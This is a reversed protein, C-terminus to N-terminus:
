TQNWLPTDTLEAPPGYQAADLEARNLRFILIAHAINDDPPHHHRLWACLRAFRLSAFAGYEKRWASYPHDKLLAALKAPDKAAENFIRLNKLADQYSAEFVKNWPGRTEAYTSELITASIAYIGPNLDYVGRAEWAPYSPLRTSTIGYYDPSDTGFYGLYLPERNGPNHQGLWNKLGPLDMGWDLSSDVLRKYGQSPGGVVPSFYALYNPYIAMADCGYWLLLLGAGFVMWRKRWAWVFGVAGGALIDLALYSPLIHRHAINLNQSIAIALFVLALTIYPIADYFSTSSGGAPTPGADTQAAPSTRRRVCWWGLGLILFIFLIPSTKAWITYPFFARSGGVTWQGDRFSTRADNDTLLLEIGDLYGEAFLHTRRSWSLFTQVAPDISDQPTRVWAQIAPNAADPSAAYRFDYHAWLCAWCWLGHMAFLACFIGAQAFRSYIMRSRGLNWELPRKSFLKVVVLVATIPFIVLATAKALFLLALFGLSALLRGWTVRHLLRWICWTSGLMALCISMETSVIGGYALM